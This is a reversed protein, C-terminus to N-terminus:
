KGGLLDDLEDDLKSAEQNAIYNIMRENAMEFWDSVRQEDNRTMHQDLEDLEDQTILGHNIMQELGATIIMSEVLTRRVHETFPGALFQFMGKPLDYNEGDYAGEPSSAGVLVCPGVLHRGFLASALWNTEMGTLLGEDNVYGVIVQGDPGELRVCDFLGGVLDQISKYDTVLVSEVKGDTGSPLLAGAVTAGM